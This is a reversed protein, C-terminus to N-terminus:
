TRQRREQKNKNFIFVSKSCLSFLCVSSASAVIASRSRCIYLIHIYIYICEYISLSTSETCGPGDSVQVNPHARAGAARRCWAAYVGIYIPCPIAPHAPTLLQAPIPLCSQIAKTEFVAGWDTLENSCLIYIYRITSHRTDIWTYDVTVYLVYMYIWTYINIDAVLVFWISRWHAPHLFIQKEKEYQKYNTLWQQEQRQQQQQQCSASCNILWIRFSVVLQM